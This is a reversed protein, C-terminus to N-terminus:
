ITVQNCFHNQQGGEFLARYEDATKGCIHIKSNSDMLPILNFSFQLILHAKNKKISLPGEYLPVQHYFVLGVDMWFERLRLACGTSM